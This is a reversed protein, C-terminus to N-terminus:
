LVELTEQNPRKLLTNQLIATGQRKLAAVPVGKVTRGV